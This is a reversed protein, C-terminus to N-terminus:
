TFLKKKFKTGFLEVAKDYDMIISRATIRANLISPLEQQIYQLEYLRGQDPYSYVLENRKKNVSFQTPETEWADKIKKMANRGTIREGFYDGHALVKVYDPVNGVTDKMISLLVMSSLKLIDPFYDEESDKMKDAMQLVLPIMKGLYAGYFATSAQKMSLNVKQSNKLGEERNICADIRCTVARKAIDQPLAPLKNTSIFVSPYNEFGEALGWQDEKIIKENHNTFQNKALDDIYIPVGECGRKLNEIQTSTFDSSSNFPIAEGCMLRELLKIFTSKGGNSKGYVIGYVPFSTVDYDNRSAVKRLYPMFPSAFYWNLFKYYDEQTQKTDGYFNKYGDM